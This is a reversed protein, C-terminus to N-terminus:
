HLSSLTKLFHHQNVQFDAHLLICISVNKDGTCLDLRLPDLFEVYFWLCQFKCRFFQSLAEFIHARSFNRFLVAITQTTLHLISFHYRM